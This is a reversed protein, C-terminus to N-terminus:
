VVQLRQSVSVMLNVAILFCCWRIFFSCFIHLDEFITFVRSILNSLFFHCSLELEHIAEYANQLQQAWGKQKGKRLFEMEILEMWPVPFPVATCDM